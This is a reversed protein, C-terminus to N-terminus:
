EVDATVEEVELGRTKLYDIMEDQVEKKEPL